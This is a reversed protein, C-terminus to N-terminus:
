IYAGSQACALIRSVLDIGDPTTMYDAPTAGNLAPLPMAIWQRTWEYADFGTPDGSESVMTEVQAVLRLFGTQYIEM